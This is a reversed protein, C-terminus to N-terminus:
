AYRKSFLTNPRLANAPLNMLRKVQAPSRTYFSTALSHWSRLIQFRSLMFHYFWCLLHAQLQMVFFATIYDIVKTRTNGTFNPSSHITQKPSVATQACFQPNSTFLFIAFSCFLRVMQFCCQRHPPSERPLHEYEPGQRLQGLEWSVVAVVVILFLCIDCRRHLRRRQYSRFSFVKVTFQHVSREPVSASAGM